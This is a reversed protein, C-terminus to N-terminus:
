AKGHHLSNIIHREKHPMWTADRPRPTFWISLLTQARKSGLWRAAGEEGSRGKGANSKEIRWLIM